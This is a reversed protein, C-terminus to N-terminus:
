RTWGRGHALVDETIVKLFDGLVTVECDLNGLKQELSYTIGNWPEEGKGQREAEM